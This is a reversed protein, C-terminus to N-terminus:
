TEKGKNAAQLWAKMVSDPNLEPTDIHLILNLMNEMLYMTQIHLARFGMALGYFKSAAESGWYYEMADRLVTIADADISDFIQSLNRIGNLIDEILDEREGIPTYETM